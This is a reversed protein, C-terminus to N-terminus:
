SIVRLVFVLHGRLLSEIWISNEMVPGSFHSRKICTVTKLPSRMPLSSQITSLLYFYICHIRSIHFIKKLPRNFIHQIKLFHIHKIWFIKLLTKSKILEPINKQITKLKNIWSHNKKIKILWSHQQSSYNM